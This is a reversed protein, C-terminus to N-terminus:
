CRRFRRSSTGCDYADSVLLVGCVCQWILNPVLALSAVLVVHVGADGVAMGWGAVAATGVVGLVVAIAFAAQVLEKLDAGRQEMQNSVAYGLQGLLRTLVTVSLVVLVFSGRGATDLYRGQIVVLVLALPSSLGNFLLTELFSSHVKRLEPARVANPSVPPAGDIAPNRVNSDYARPHRHKTV